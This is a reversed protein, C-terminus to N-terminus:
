RFAPVFTRDLPRKIYTKKTSAVTELNIAGLISGFLSSTSACAGNTDHGRGRDLAALGPM